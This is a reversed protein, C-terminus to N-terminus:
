FCFKGYPCHSVPYYCCDPECFYFWGCASPCYFIDCGYRNSYCRESWHHHEKGKYCWGHEFKTGHTFRYDKYHEHREHRDNDRHGRSGGDGASAAGAAALGIVASLLIRRM